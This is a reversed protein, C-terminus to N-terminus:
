RVTEPQTARTDSSRMQYARDNESRWQQNATDPWNEQDFGKANQLTEKDVNLVVITENDANKRCEFAKWPIAFLEDGMGLFGGASVAVYDITGKNPDIVIDNIEGVSEDANNKVNLGILNSARVNQRASMQHHSGNYQSPTAHNADTQVHVGPAQVDVGSAQQQAWGTTALALVSLFTIMRM